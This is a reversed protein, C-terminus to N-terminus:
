DKKGIHSQVTVRRPFCCSYACLVLAGCKKSKRRPLGLKEARSFFLLNRRRLSQGVDHALYIVDHAVYIVDRNIYIVDHALTQTGPTRVLIRSDCM